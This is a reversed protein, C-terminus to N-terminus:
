GCYQGELGGREAGMCRMRPNSARALVHHQTAGVPRGSWVMDAWSVTMVEGSAASLAKCQGHPDSSLPSSPLRLPRRVRGSERVQRTGSGPLHSLSDDSIPHRVHPAGWASAALNSTQLMQAGATTGRVM